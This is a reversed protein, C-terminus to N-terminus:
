QGGGQFGIGHDDPSVSLPSKHIYVLLCLEALHFKIVSLRQENAHSNIPHSAVPVIRRAKLRGEEQDKIARRM